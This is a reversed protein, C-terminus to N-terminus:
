KFFSDSVKESGTKHLKIFRPFEIFKLENCVVFIFLGLLWPGVPYKDPKPDLTKAVHGRKTINKSFSDNAVRRRQKAPMKVRFYVFINKTLIMSDRAM